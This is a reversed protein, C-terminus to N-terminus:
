SIGMELLTLSSNKAEVRSSAQSWLHVKFAVGLDRDGISLFRSLGWVVRMSVPSGQPLVLPDRLDGDYSLLFGLNGIAVRSFGPSEGRWALHPGKRSHRRSLFGEQAKFPDKVSKLCSLIEPM